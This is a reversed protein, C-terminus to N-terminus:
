HILTNGILNRYGRQLRASLSTRTIGLKEALEELTTERPNNYYGENFVLILAEQQAQTLNYQSGTGIESLSQLRSLATEIGQERCYQHYESIQAPGEARFKFVWNKSTGEATLLTIGSEVIATLVGKQDTDWKARFLSGDVVNDVLEASVIAPQSELLELVREPNQNWVWIYPLVGDNTPILRELEVRADPLEEFINGLPFDDTPIIFEAEQAM